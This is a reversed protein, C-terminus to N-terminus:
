EEMFGIEVKPFYNKLLEEVEEQNDSSTVWCGEEADWPSLGEVSFKRMFDTNFAKSFPVDYIQILEDEMNHLIVIEKSM